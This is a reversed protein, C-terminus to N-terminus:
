IVIADSSYINSIEILTGEQIRNWNETKLVDANIKVIGHNSLGYYPLNYGITKEYFEGFTRISTILWQEETLDIFFGCIKYNYVNLEVYSGKAKKIEEITENRTPNNIGETTEWIGQVDNFCSGADVSNVNNILGDYIVLGQPGFKSQYGLNDRIISTPIGIRKEINFKFREYIDINEDNYKSKGGGGKPTIAHICAFNEQLCLDRIM